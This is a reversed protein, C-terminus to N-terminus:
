GNAHGAEMAKLAALSDFQGGLFAKALYLPITDNSMMGDLFRSFGFLRGIM